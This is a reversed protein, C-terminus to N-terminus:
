YYWYYTFQQEQETTLTFSPTVTKKASLPMAM